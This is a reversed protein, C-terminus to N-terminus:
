IQRDVPYSFVKGFSSANVNAPTLITENANLRTRQGDNHYTLVSALAPAPPTPTPTPTIPPPNNSASIGACGTLLVLVFLFFLVAPARFQKM